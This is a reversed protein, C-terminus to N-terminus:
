AGYQALDVGFCRDMVVRMGAAELKEAAPVSAIGQQMWVVKPRKSVPLALIEDALAALYEPRRFIQIVDPAEALDALSALAPVGLAQKLTPNVPLIRIGHESMGLPIRHAPASGADDGKIGVVAVVKAGRVIAAVEAETPQTWPM